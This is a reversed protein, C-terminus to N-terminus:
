KGKSTSHRVSVLPTSQAQDPRGGDVNAGAVEAGAIGSGRTAKSFPKQEAETSVQAGAIVHAINCAAWHSMGKDADLMVLHKWHLGHLLMHM